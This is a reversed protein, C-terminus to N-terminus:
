STPPTSPLVQCVEGEDKLAPGTSAHLSFERFVPDDNLARSTATPPGLTTLSRSGQRHPYGPIELDEGKRSTPSRTRSPSTAPPISPTRALRLDRLATKRNPLSLEQYSTGQPDVVLVHVHQRDGFTALKIISEARRPGTAPPQLAPSPSSDLFDISRSPEGAAPPRATRTVAAATSRSDESKRQSGTQKRLYNTAGRSSPDGIRRMETDRVAWPNLLLEPRELMIAPSAERAYRRELIYRFEDSIKRGSLYLNPLHAPRGQTSDPGPPCSGLAAFLDHEPLFRTAVVHM